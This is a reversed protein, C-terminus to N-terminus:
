LGNEYISKGNQHILFFILCLFALIIAVFIIHLTKHYVNKKQHIHHDEDLHPQTNNQKESTNEM